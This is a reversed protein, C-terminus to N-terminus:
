SGRIIPSDSLDRFDFKIKVLFEGKESVELTLKAQNVRCYAKVLFLGLGLGASNGADQHLNCFAQIVVEEGPKLYQQQNAILLESEQWVMLVQGTSDGFKLANEVLEETVFRLHRPDFFVMQDSKRQFQIKESGSSLVLTDLLEGLDVPAGKKELTALGLFLDIKQISSNLWKARALARDNEKLVEVWNRQNAAQKQVELSEILGKMPSHSEPYPMEGSIKTVVKLERLGISEKDKKVDLSAFVSNLLMRASIPKTLYDDAGESIGRSRDERGAKASLFIFPIHKFKGTGRFAKLFQYGDMVPMMIDCIILDVPQSELKQLGEKGNDATVVSFGNFELIEKLNQQLEIEDEILLITDKM